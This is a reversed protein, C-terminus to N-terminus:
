KEKQSKSPNVAVKVISPRIVKNKMIYGKRVEEIVTNNTHDDTQVMLTAEHLEPNFPKGLAEIECLGEECLIKQFKNFVMEIGEM